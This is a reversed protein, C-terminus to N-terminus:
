NIGGGMGGFGANTVASANTFLITDGVSVGTIIEVTTGDNIGTVIATKVPEGNEDAILVYPTNDDEFQIVTMPLTVANKVFDSIVQVEASMGIKIAEDQTLDVTAIFYTVGNIVQGEKSMSSVVGTIKKDIAWITVTTEKGIALASIDYEDVKVNIELNDYDVIQLLSAGAIVQEDEEVYIDAIEGDIEAEIKKGTSTKFLVDGVVVYDGESVLIDSIQMVKESIVTQRNKTEVNGSFSYYTIIDGSTAIESEYPSVTPRFYYGVAVAAIVIVIVIITIWRKKRSRKKVNM